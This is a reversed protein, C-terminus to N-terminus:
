ILCVFNLIRADSVKYIRFQVYEELVTKTKLFRDNRNIQQM